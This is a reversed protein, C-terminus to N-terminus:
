IPLVIFIFVLIYHRTPNRSNLNERRVPSERPGCEKNRYIQRRM